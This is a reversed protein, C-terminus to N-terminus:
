YRKFTGGVRGGGVVQLPSSSMMPIGDFVLSPALFVPSPPESFLIPMSEAGMVLLASLDLAEYRLTIEDIYGNSPQHITVPDPSVPLDLSGGFFPTVPTPAPQLPRLGQPIPLSVDELEVYGWVYVSAPLVDGLQGAVLRQPGRLPFRDLVKVPPIFSFESPVARAVQFAPLNGNQQAINLETSPPVAKNFYAYLTVLFVRSQVDPPTNRLDFVTLGSDPSATVDVANPLLKPFGNGFIPRRM